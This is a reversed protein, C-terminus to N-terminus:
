RAGRPLRGAVLLYRAIWRLNYYVAVLALEATFWGSLLAGALLHMRVDANAPLHYARRLWGVAPSRQTESRDDSCGATPDTAQGVLQQEIGLGYVLLYKGSVFGVLLAWPWPSASQSAAAAAVALHLGIDVLEDVNADLWAGWASVSGQRRALQGDARDFFWGALVAVAAVAASEPRWLLVAAALAALILGCATLHTPRVSTRALAAALRDAAPCLYWRSIPHRQRRRQEDTSDARAGSSEGVPVM